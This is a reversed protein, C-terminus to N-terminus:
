MDSVTMLHVQWLFYLTNVTIFMWVGIVGLYSIRRGAFLSRFRRSTLPSFIVVASLTPSALAPLMSQSLLAAEYPIVASALAACGAWAFLIPLFFYWRRYDYRM